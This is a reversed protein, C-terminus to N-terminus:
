VEAFEKRIAKEAEQQERYQLVLEYNTKFVGPRPSANRWEKHAKEVQQETMQAALKIELTALAPREVDELQRRLKSRREVRDKESLLTGRRMPDSSPLRETLKQEKEVLKELGRIIKRQRDILVQLNRRTTKANRAGIVWQADTKDLQQPDRYDQTPPPAPPISAAIAMVEVDTLRQRSPLIGQERYMNARVRDIRDLEEQTAM